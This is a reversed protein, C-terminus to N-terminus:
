EELSDLNQKISELTEDHVRLSAKEIQREFVNIAKLYVKFYSKPSPKSGQFYVECYALALEHLDQEDMNHNRGIKTSYLFGM